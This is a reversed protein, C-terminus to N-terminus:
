YLFHKVVFGDEDRYVTTRWCIRVTLTGVTKGHALDYTLRIGSSKNGELAWPVQLVVEAPQVVRITDGTMFRGVVAHLLYTKDRPTVLGFTGSASVVQRLAERCALFLCHFVCPSNRM